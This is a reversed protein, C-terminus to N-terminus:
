EGPSAQLPLSLGQGSKTRLVCRYSYLRYTRNFVQLSTLFSPPSTQLTGQSSCLILM